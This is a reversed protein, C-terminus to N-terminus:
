IAYQSKKLYIQYDVIHEISIHPLGRAMAIAHKLEKSTFMFNEESESKCVDPEPEQKCAEQSTIEVFKLDEQMISFDNLITKLEEIRKDIVIDAIRGYTMEKENAWTIRIERAIEEYNNVLYKIFHQYIDFWKTRFDEIINGEEGVILFNKSIALKLTKLEQLSLTLIPNVLKTTEMTKSNLNDLIQTNLTKSLNLYTMLIQYCRSIIEADYLANHKNKLIGGSINFETVGVKAVFEERSIDSNEGAAEFLTCIDFPIYHVNDPLSCHRESHERNGNKPMLTDVTDYMTEFEFIKRFLVWDYALCDGWFCVKDFQSLWKVLDTKLTETSCHLTESYSKQFDVNKDHRIKSYHFQQGVKPETFLLNPLVNLKVFDSTDKEKDYDNLEAYFYRGDEAVIGISILKAESHLRTFETDFFLNTMMTTKQSIM